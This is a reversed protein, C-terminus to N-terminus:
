NYDGKEGINVFRKRTVHLKYNTGVQLLLLLCLPNRLFSSPSSRISNYQKNLSAAQRLELRFLASENTELLNLVTRRKAPSRHYAGWASCSAVWEQLRFSPLFFFFLWGGVPHTLISHYQHGIVFWPYHTCVRSLIPYHVLQRDTRVSHGLRLRPWETLVSWGALVNDSM